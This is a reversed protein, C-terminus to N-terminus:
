SSHQFNLQTNLGDNQILIKRNKSIPGSQGGQSGWFSNKGGWFYLEENTARNQHFKFCLTKMHEGIIISIFIYSSPDGEGREGEFFDFEILILWHILFNVNKLSPPPPLPPNLRILVRHQIKKHEIWHYKKYNEM